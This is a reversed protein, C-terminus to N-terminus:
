ILYCMHSISEINSLALYTHASNTQFIIDRDDLKIM